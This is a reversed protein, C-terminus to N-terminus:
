SVLKRYGGDWYCGMDMGPVGLNRCYDERLFLYGRWCSHRFLCLDLSFSVFSLIYEFCYV